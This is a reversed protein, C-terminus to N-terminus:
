NAKQPTRKPAAVMSSRPGGQGGTTKKLFTVADALFNTDYRRIDYMRAM